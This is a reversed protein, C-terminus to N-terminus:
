EEDDCTCSTGGDWFEGGCVACPAYDYEEYYDDEFPSYMEWMAEENTLPHVVPKGDHEYPVVESYCQSCVKNVYVEDYETDYSEVTEVHWVEGHKPCKYMPAFLGSFEGTFM